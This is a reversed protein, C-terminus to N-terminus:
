NLIRLRFETTWRNRANVHVVSLIKIATSSAGIISEVDSQIDDRDSQDRAYIELRGELYECIKVNDFTQELVGGENRIEIGVNLARRKTTTKREIIRPLSGYNTWTGNTLITNVLATFTTM